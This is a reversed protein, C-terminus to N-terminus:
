ENKEQSTKDHSSFAGAAGFPSKLSICPRPVRCLAFSNWTFRLSNGVSLILLSRPNELFRRLTRRGTKLPRFAQTLVASM